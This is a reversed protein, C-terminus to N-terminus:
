HARFVFTALTLLLVVAAITAFIRERRLLFGVGAALVGVLPSLALVALGSLLCGSAIDSNLVVSGLISTKGPIYLFLVGLLLCPMSICIGTVLVVRVFRSIDLPQM